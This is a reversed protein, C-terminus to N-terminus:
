ARADQDVCRLKGGTDRSVWSHRFGVPGQQRSVLLCLNDKAIVHDLLERRPYDMVNSSFHCWRKDFPRYLCHTILREWEADAQLRARAPGLQWDRNDKLRYRQRLADDTLGPNRLAAVRDRLPTRDLDIAFRDRHTQFGLVNVPMIEQLRWGRYWEAELRPDRPTFSYFPEPPVVSTWETSGVDNQDLFQYKGGALERGGGSSNAWVERLGWLHCHFIRAQRNNEPGHKIFIGIAVGQQIDFVNQDPGGDPAREKKKMNGHLDLVYITDFTQMLAHRM